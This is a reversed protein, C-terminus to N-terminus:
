TDRSRVYRRRQRVDHLEIGELLLMLDRSSLEICAISGSGHPEAFTGQELRKCFLWFGTLDWVLLKVRDRRRNFFAFLHGSFPDQALVDQTLACLTDFSKRM